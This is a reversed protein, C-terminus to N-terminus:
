LETKLVNSGDKLLISLEEDTKIGIGSLVWEERKELIQECNPRESQNENMMREILKRLNEYKQKL